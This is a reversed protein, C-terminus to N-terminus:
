NDDWADSADFARRQLIREWQMSLCVPKFQPKLQDRVLHSQMQYRTTDLASTKM